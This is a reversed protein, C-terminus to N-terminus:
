CNVYGHQSMSCTRLSLPVANGLTSFLVCYMNSAGMDVHNWSGHECWSEWCVTKAMFLQLACFPPRSPINLVHWCHTVNSITRPPCLQWHQLGRPSPLNGPQKDIKTRRFPLPGASVRDYETLYVCFPSISVYLPLNFCPYLSLYGSFDVHLCIVRLPTCGSGRGWILRWRAMSECTTNSLPYNSHLKSWIDM